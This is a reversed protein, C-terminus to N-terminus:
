YDHLCHGLSRVKLSFGGWNGLLLSFWLFPYEALVESEEIKKGRKERERERKRREVKERERANRYYLELVM